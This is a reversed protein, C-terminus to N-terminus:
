NLTSHELRALSSTAALELKSKAGLKHRVNALHNRVTNPSLFLTRAIEKNSLGALTCQLVERERSTLTSHTGEMVAEEALERSVRVLPSGIKLIEQTLDRLSSSKHIVCVAGALRAERRVKASDAATLVVFESTSGLRKMDKIFDTGFSGDLRYDVLVVEPAATAVYAAAEKPTGAIMVDGVGDLGSLCNALSQALLVHDDLILVNFALRKVFM